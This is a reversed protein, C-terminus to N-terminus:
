FFIIIPVVFKPTPEQTCPLRAKLFLLYKTLIQIHCLGIIVECFRYGIAWYFSAISSDLETRLLLYWSFLQLYYRFFFDLSTHQVIRKNWTKRKRGGFYNALLSWSHALTKFLFLFLAAKNEQAKCVFHSYSATCIISSRSKAHVLISRKTLNFYILLGLQLVPKALLWRDSILCIYIRM